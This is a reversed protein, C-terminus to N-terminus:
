RLAAGTRFRVVGWSGRCLAACCTSWLMSAIGRHYSFARMNNYSSNNWSDFRGNRGLGGVSFSRLHTFGEGWCLLLELDKWAGAAGAGSRVARVGDLVQLIEPAVTCHTETSIEFPAGSDMCHFLDAIGLDRV